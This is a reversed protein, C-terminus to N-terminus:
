PNKIFFKYFYYGSRVMGRAHFRPRDGEDRGGGDGIGPSEEFDPLQIDEAVVGEGGRVEALLQALEEIEGIVEAFDAVVEAFFVLLDEDGSGSGEASVGGRGTFIRKNENGNRIWGTGPGSVAMSVQWARVKM